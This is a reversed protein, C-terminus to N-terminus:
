PAGPSICATTEGTACTPCVVCASGKPFGYAECDADKRCDICGGVVADGCFSAQGTTRYCQAFQLDPNCATGINPECADLDPTCPGVHHAVCKSKDKEGRKPKKGQCKGSCCLADKDRCPQGVNVCGFANKRPKQKKGKRAETGHPLFAQSGLVLGVAGGITRGVQRRTWRDFRWGDM